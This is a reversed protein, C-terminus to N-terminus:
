TINDGIVTGAECMINPADNVARSFVLRHDSIINFTQHANVFYARTCGTIPCMLYFPSNSGSALKRSNKNRETKRPIYVEEDDSGSSSSGSPNYSKESM